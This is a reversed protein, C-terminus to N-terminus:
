LTDVKNTGAFYLELRLRDQKSIAAFDCYEPLGHRALYVQMSADDHGDYTFCNEGLICERREVGPLAYSDNLSVHTFGLRNLLKRVTSSDLLALAPISGSSPASKVIAYRVWREVLEQEAETAKEVNGNVGHCCLHAHFDALSHFVDRGVEEGDPRCYKRHSFSFGMKVLIHRVTAFKPLIFPESMVLKVKKVTSPKGVPMKRKNSSNFAPTNKVSTKSSSAVSMDETSAEVDAAATRRTKRTISKASSKKAASKAKTPFRDRRNPTADVKRGSSSASVAKAKVKKSSSEEEQNAKPPKNEAAEAKSATDVESKKPECQSDAKGSTKRTSAMTQSATEVAVAPKNSEDNTAEQDNIKTTEVTIAKETTTATPEATTKSVVAVNEDDVTAPEDKKEVFTQGKAMTAVPVAYDVPAQVATSAPLVNAQETQANTSTTAAVAAPKADEEDDEDSDPEYWADKLIDLTTKIAAMWRSNSNLEPQSALTSVNEIFNCKEAEEGALVLRRDIGTKKGVLFLLPQNSADPNAQLKPFHEYFMRSQEKTSLWGNRKVEDYMQKYNDFLLAPWPIAQGAKTQVTVFLARENLDSCDM